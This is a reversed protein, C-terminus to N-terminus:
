SETKLTSRTHRLVVKILDWLSGKRTWYQYGNSFVFYFPATNELGYKNRDQQTAKCLTVGLLNFLRTKNM